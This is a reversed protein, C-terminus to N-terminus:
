DRRSDRATWEQQDKILGTLPEVLWTPLPDKFHDIKDASAGEGPSFMRAGNRMGNGSQTHGGIARSSGSREGQPEDHTRQSEGAGGIGGPM